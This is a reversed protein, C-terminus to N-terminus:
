RPVPQAASRAKPRRGRHRGTRCPKQGNRRASAAKVESVRETVGRKLQGLLRADPNKWLQVQETPIVAWRLPGDGFGGLLRGKDLTRWPPVHNEEFTVSCRPM